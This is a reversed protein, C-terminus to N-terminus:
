DVQYELNTDSFELIQFHKPTKQFNLSFIQLKKPMKQSQIFKKNKLWNDHNKKQKTGQLTYCNEPYPFYPLM